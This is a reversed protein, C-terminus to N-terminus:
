KLATKDINNTPLEQVKDLKKEIMRSRKSATEITDSAEQLKKHTKDLLEGFKTFDDKVKALIGWVESSRKQIALTRFGMQLSNLLAGLTTPGAINVKYKNQLAEILGPRRIIEAFLGETPVFLIAFDTTYPPSIYKEKIHRAELKIRHELQKLSEETAAIDGKEQAEVLRAYDEQPFKADLPLYVVKNIDDKGPLKIAYEVREASRPKTAVNTEYQEPSLIQELLQGLQIEGWTGRTKINTLVKKLDGVGTALKQMEGLGEYVQKLQNTVMTFSESLRKELTSQLKEDVTERMKELKKANDEQLSQIRKEITESMKDLRGENSETLKYLQKLFSDNFQRLTNSLEERDSKAQKNSEERNRYIEDKLVSEVRSTMKEISNLETEFSQKKSSFLRFFIAGSVLLLIFNTILLIILIVQIQM